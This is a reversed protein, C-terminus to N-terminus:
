IIVLDRWLAELALMVEAETRTLSNDFVLDARAKKEDIPIQQDLIAKIVELSSGDRSMVREIQVEKPTWSVIVGDFQTEMKREFLLPIEYILWPVPRFPTEAMEFTAPMRPYIWSELQLRVTPDKFAKERLHRFNPNGNDPNIVDPHHEVLWTLTEPRSYITKVLNDASIFPVNKQTFFHSLTSKGTGIGGTLAIVPYARNNVRKEPTLKHWREQLFPLIM